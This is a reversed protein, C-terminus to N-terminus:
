LRESISQALVEVMDQTCTTQGKVLGMETLVIAKPILGINEITRKACGISCGDITIVEEAAKAADIFQQLGAGIGILCSAKTTAFGIRRLSRSVQDAVEGVDACGSCAYVIRKEGDVQCSYELIM